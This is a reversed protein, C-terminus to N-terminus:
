RWFQLFILKQLVLDGTRCDKTIAARHVQVGDVQLGKKEQIVLNDIELDM